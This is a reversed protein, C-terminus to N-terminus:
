RGPAPGRAGLGVVSGLPDVPLPGPRGDSADPGLLPGGVASVLALRGVLVGALRSRALLTAAAARLPGGALVVRFSSM